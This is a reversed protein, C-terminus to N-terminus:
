PGQAVVVRGAGTQADISGDLGILEIEGWDLRVVLPVRSPVEVRFHVSPAPGHRRKEAPPVAAQPATVATVAFGKDTEAMFLAVGRDHHGQRAVVLGEEAAARRASVSGRDGRIELVAGAPLRGRWVYEQGATLPTVSIAPRAGDRLGLRRMMESLTTPLLGLRAAARSQQGGCEALTAMILSREFQVM